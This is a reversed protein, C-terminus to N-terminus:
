SQWSVQADRIGADLLAKRIEELDGRRPIGIVWFRGDDVAVQLRRSEAQSGALFDRLRQHGLPSIPVLPQNSSGRLPLRSGRGSVFPGPIVADLRALTGAHRDRLTRLPYGSYCLVDIDDGRRGAWDRLGDILAALADAQDFPEGGSITVGDLPGDAIRECEALLQAVTTNRSPDSPWTDRALCDRCGISCGQVWIGLRRGPGLVTVPYHVRNVQINM